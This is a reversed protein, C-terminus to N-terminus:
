EYSHMHCAERYAEGLAPVACGQLASSQAAAVPVVLQPCGRGAGPCVRPVEQAPSGWGWLPSQILGGPAAWSAYPPGWHGIGSLCENENLLRGGGGGCNGGSVFILMNLETCVAWTCAIAALALCRQCPRWRPPRSLTLALFVDWSVFDSSHDDM